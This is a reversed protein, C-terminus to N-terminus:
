HRALYGVDSPMPMNMEGQWIQMPSGDNRVLVVAPRGMVDYNEVFQIGRPSDADMLETEVQEEEQLRRNLTEAIREGATNKNYIVYAIM